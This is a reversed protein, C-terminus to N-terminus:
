KGETVRGAYITRCSKAKSDWFYWYRYEGHGKGGNCRCGSGCRVRRRVEKARGEALARM